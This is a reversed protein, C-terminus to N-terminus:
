WLGQIVRIRNSPWYSLWARGIIDDETVFGWARSDNSVPRNDGLVYYSREPVKVAERSRQDSNVVYPEDLAEGNRIVQGRDVEITDGPLGIVRKVFGRSPDRPYDFAIMDGYAPGSSALLSPTEDPRDGFPSLSGLAETNLRLYSLKSVIIHQENVFTPHMSTGDIRFNQISLHLAVFVVLFVLAAELLERFHHRIESVAEAVVAGYRVANLVVSGM